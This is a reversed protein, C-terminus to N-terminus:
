FARGTSTQKHEQINDYRKGRIAQANGCKENTVYTQERQRERRPKEPQINRLKQGAQDRSWKM